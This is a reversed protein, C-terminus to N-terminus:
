EVIPLKINWKIKLFNFLLVLGGGVTIEKIEPKLGVMLGAVALIAAFKLSHVLGKVISYKKDSM